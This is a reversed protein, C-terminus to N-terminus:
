CLYFASLLTMGLSYIDAQQFDAQKSNSLEPAGYYASTRM